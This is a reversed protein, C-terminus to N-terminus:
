LRIRVGRAHRTMNAPTVAATACPAASEAGVLRAPRATATRATVSVEQRTERAANPFQVPGLRAFGHRPAELNVIHVQAPGPLAITNVRQVAMAAARARRLLNGVSILWSLPNM